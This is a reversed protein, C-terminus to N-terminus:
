ESHKNRAWLSLILAILLAVIISTSIIDSLDVNNSWQALHGEYAVGSFFGFSYVLFCTVVIAIGYSIKLM